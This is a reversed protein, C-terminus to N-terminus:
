WDDFAGKDCDGGDATDDDCGNITDSGGLLWGGGLCEDGDWGAWFVDDGGNGCLRDHSFSSTDWDDGAILVDDGDGGRIFDAGTGGDLYDAGLDGDLKDRGPGAWIVDDGWGADLADDGDGGILTDEGQNAWLKDNGAGGSMLDDGSGGDLEDDGDGGYLEDKGPAGDLIDNGPGGWLVDNEGDVVLFDGEGYLRDNGEGGDLEDFGQNGELEDDGGFGVLCDNGSDGTLDDNGPTGLILDDGNTDEDDDREIRCTGGPTCTWRGGGAWISVKGRTADELWAAFPRRCFTKGLDMAAACPHNPDYIQGDSAGGSLIRDLPVFGGCDLPARVTPVATFRGHRYLYYAAFTAMYDIGNFEGTFHRSGFRDEPNMTRSEGMWGPVEVACGGGRCPGTCPASRLFAEVRWDSYPSELEKDQLIAYALAYYDKNDTTAKSSMKGPGWVGNAAALRMSMTRNYGHTAEWIVQLGAWAAEGVTRSAFTRYDDVGFEDGVVANAVKAMANSFGIANGGWADPPSGGTPDKVKWGNDRLFWVLRHVKERADRALAVGDVSLAEPVLKDVLALGFLLAITQDQSTFSGDEIDPPDCNIDGSVCEYGAFGSTAPDRPFRYGGDKRFFDRPVDDRLFLGNRAPPYGPFYGEAAEDVRDLAALALRLDRDTEATPYGLDVFMAHELALLAIYEGLWITGDGWNVMGRADVLDERPCEGFAWYGACNVTPDRRSAPMSEGPGTGISIFGPNQASGDGRLRTRYHLYKGLLDDDRCTAAEDAARRLDAGDATFANTPGSCADNCHDDKGNDAGDDCAEVPDVHGDGCRPGLGSCDANCSGYAGNDPGDDCAERKGDKEGDGCAPGPGSCDAACAGYDGNLPGDDCAEPAVLVGDGCGPTPRCDIPCAGPQGNAPGDDCSEYPATVVGDGCGDAPGQCDTACFGYGGNKDDGDDCAESDAEIFGNGCREAPGNCGYGCHGYKGNDAGDDCVERDPQVVGDGCHEAPGLCDAACQGYLGNLEGEDCAEAGEVVANGCTSQVVEIEIAPSTDDAVEVTDIGQGEDGGGCAAILGTLAFMFRKM